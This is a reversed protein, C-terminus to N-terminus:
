KVEEFGYLDLWFQEGDNVWFWWFKKIPQFLAYHTCGKRRWSGVPKIMKYFKGDNIYIKSM